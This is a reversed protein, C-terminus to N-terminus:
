NKYTIRINNMLFFDAIYMGYNLNSDDIFAGSAGDGGAWAHAVDKLILKSVRNGDYLTETAGGGISKENIATNASLGYVIAMADANISTYEENVISDDTGHAVASIQTSLSDKYNGAFKLCSDAASYKDGEVDMPSVRKIVGGSPAAFIAMGAFVDPALCGMAMTFVGGSSLGAIYVQDKDISLNQRQLLDNTLALLNNYDGKTRLQKTEFFDWCGLGTPYEADPLAIVMGYREAVADLNATLFDSAAQICGHLVIMLSRGSGIPSVKEPVYLHVNSFGATSGSKWKQSVNTKESNSACGYIATIILLTFLASELLRRKMIAGVNTIM